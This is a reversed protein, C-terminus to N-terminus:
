PRPPLKVIYEFTVGEPFYRRGKDYLTFTFKLASPWLDIGLYQSFPRLEADPRWDILKDGDFDRENQTPEAPAGAVNWYLAFPYNSTSSFGIPKREPLSPDGYPPPDTHGYELIHDFGALLRPNPFWSGAGAFWPEIRFNTVDPLLYLKQVAEDGVNNYVAQLDPRRIMSTAENLNHLFYHNQFNVFLENRWFSLSANEVQFYDFDESTWGNWTSFDNPM